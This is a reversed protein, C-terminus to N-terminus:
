HVCSIPCMVTLLSHFLFSPADATRPLCPYKCESTEYTVELTLREVDTGFVNCPKGALVLDAIIKNGHDFVTQAKYGPCADLIAPSIVTAAAFPLLFTFILVHHLYM